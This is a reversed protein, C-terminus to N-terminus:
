VGRLFAGWERAATLEPEQVRRALLVWLGTWCVVAWCSSRGDNLVKKETVKEGTGWERNMIKLCYRWEGSHQGWRLLLIFAARAGDWAWAAGLTHTNEKAPPSQLESYCLWPCTESSIWASTGEQVGASNSQTHLDKLEAVEL